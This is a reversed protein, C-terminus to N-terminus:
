KMWRAFDARVFAKTGERGTLRLALQGGERDLHVAFDFFPCCLRETDVWESVLQVTSRDGPFVFEYGESLERVAIRRTALTGSIQEKREREAKTLTSLNCYFPSIQVAQGAVTAVLCMLCMTVRVFWVIM